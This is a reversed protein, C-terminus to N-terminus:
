NSPGSGEEMRELVQNLVGPERAGAPTVTPLHDIAQMADRYNPNSRYTKHDFAQGGDVFWYETRRFQKMDSARYYQIDFVHVAVNPPSPSLTVLEERHFRAPPLNEVFAMRESMITGSRVEVAVDKTRADFGYMSHRLSLSAIPIDGDNQVVFVPHGTDAIDMTTQVVPEMHLHALSKAVENQQRAFYASLAAVLLALSAMWNARVWALM